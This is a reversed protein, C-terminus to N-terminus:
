PVLRSRKEMEKFLAELGTSPVLVVKSRFETQYVRTHKHAIQSRGVIAIAQARRARARDEKSDGERGDDMIVDWGKLDQLFLDLKERWAPSGGVILWQTLGREECARRAGVFARRTNSGECVRCASRNKTCVTRRGSSVAMRQSLEACQSSSCHVAFREHLAAAANPVKDAAIGAKPRASLIRAERLAAIALERQDRADFGENALWSDLNVVEDAMHTIIV